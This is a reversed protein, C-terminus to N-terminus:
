DWFWNLFPAPAQLMAGLCLASSLLYIGLYPFMYWFGRRIACVIALLPLAFITSLLLIFFLMGTVWAHWILPAPFGKEGISAPWDGLTLHLHLALTYFLVLMAVSPLLAATLGTRNLKMADLPDKETAIDPPYTFREPM